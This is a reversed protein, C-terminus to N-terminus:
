QNPQESSPNRVQSVVNRLQQLQLPKGWVEDIGKERLQEPTNESLFREADGTFLVVHPPKKGEPVDKAAKAVDFGSLKGALGADTIVLDFPSNAKKRSNILQIAEEATTCSTVITNVERRLVLEIMAKPVEEDEVLLVRINKPREGREQLEGEESFNTM